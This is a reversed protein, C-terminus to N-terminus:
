VEKLYRASCFGTITTDVANHPKGSVKWWTGNKEILILVTDRKFEGIVKGNESERCNLFYCNTVSAYKIHTEDHQEAGFSDYEELGYKNVVKMNTSVYTSSTAYGDAKIMELFEQPTNAEHLNSYRATSIFQFFGKVGEEISPYVRFNARIDTLTGVTYEEKTAMNVSEGHWASGCKMGFYNHYKALGSTGYASEVCAMALISSAVHYGYMKAYKVIYPAMVEIFTKIQKSTAM